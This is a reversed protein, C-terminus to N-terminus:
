RAIFRSYDSLVRDVCLTDTMRFTVIDAVEGPQLGRIRGELHILRAPNLTAMQIAGRLNAYGNQVVNAIAQNMRLSSGALKESGALVVRDDETLEVDLEGLRYAGPAAGAPASADTVLITRDIGKARMAVRTFADGLHIGDVIFSASLRDDALQEWLYNPHRPLVRHAANGIHTSLTAGADVALAIQEANAGTHGISVTVGAAALSEIYGPAGPWHPSLTVLRINGGTADQWRGFERLDPPRVWHAPHAGRPGDEAGIHPGEVHFGAIMQGQPLEVQARRLNRLSALMEEPSNTIVTPLCRTVGTRRIAELARALDTLSACPSNFDVGAFGNVQLDIFGPALFLDRPATECPRVSLITEAFEIEVGLGTFVDIGSVTQPM